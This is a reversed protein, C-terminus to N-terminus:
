LIITDHITITAVKTDDFIANLTKSTGKLHDRKYDLLVPAIMQYYVQLLLLVSIFERTSGSM